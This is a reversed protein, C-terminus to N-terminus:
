KKAIKDIVLAEFRDFRKELNEIKVSISSVNVSNNWIVGILAVISPILLGLLITNVMSQRAPSM